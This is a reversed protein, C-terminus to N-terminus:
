YVHVWLVLLLFEMDGRVKEIASLSKMSLFYDNCFMSRERM